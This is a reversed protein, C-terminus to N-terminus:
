YMQIYLRIYALRACFTSISVVSELAPFDGVQLYPPSPPISVGPM